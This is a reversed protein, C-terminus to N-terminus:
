CATAPNVRERCFPSKVSEFLLIGMWCAFMDPSWSMWPVSCSNATLARGGPDGQLYVKPLVAAAELFAAVPATHLFLLSHM